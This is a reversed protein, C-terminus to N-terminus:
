NARFWGVSSPKSSSALLSSSSSSSSSVLVTDDKTLFAIGSKILSDPVAERVLPHYHIVDSLRLDLESIQLVSAKLGIDVLTKLASRFDFSPILGPCSLYHDLRDLVIAPNFGLNAPSMKYFDIVGRFWLSGYKTNLVPTGGLMCVIAAQIYDDSSLGTVASTHWVKTGDFRYKMCAPFGAVTQVSPKYEMVDAELPASANYETIALLADQCISVSVSVATATGVKPCYFVDLERIAYYLYLQEM